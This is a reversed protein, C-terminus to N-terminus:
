VEPHFGMTKRWDARAVRPAAEALAQDADIRRIERYIAETIQRPSLASWAERSYGSRVLTYAKQFVPDTMSAGRVRCKSQFPGRCPSGRM